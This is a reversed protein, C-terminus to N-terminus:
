SSFFLEDLVSLDLGKKSIDLSRHLKGGLLVIARHCLKLAEGVNQEVLLVTTRWNRNIEKIKGLTEGVLRPSLGASPEDLLLLTPRRMLVVALALSQREGGSLLGARRGLLSSLNAFTAKIEEIRKGTERRSLDMVGVELNERVSLNPFVRGGQLFHAIGSRARVYPAMRDIDQGMFRVHGRTPFVSGAITKLLTSKGAGNPGILAVIEGEDVQMTIDTLVQKKGYAASVSELELQPV